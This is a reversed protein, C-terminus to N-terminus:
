LLELRTLVYRLAVRDDDQTVLSAEDLRRATPNLL